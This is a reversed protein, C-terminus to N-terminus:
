AASDQAQLVSLAGSRVSAPYPIREVLQRLPALTMGWQYDELVRKRARNGIQTAEGNLIQLLAAAFAKPEDATLFEDGRCRELGERAESTLVLAAGMAMAELVKNQVGRAIRLPAIVATAHHLYPRVDPVRGTVHVDVGAISRVERSPNAGVIWLAPGSPHSRVQPMVEAVFWKMADVNPRYDMLGTFVIAPREDFPNPLAANKVFYTSDVGNELVHTHSAAEPALKKFLNAESPSVFVVADATAAAEREAKLLYQAERGYVWRSIGSGEEGYQRWKQSDVDVMDIIVRARHEGRRIYQAMASSYVYVIEPDHVRLLKEVASGFVRDGFYGETLPAGSLLCRLSRLRAMNPSLPRWLVSACLKELRSVHERDEPEDIFTGLHVEYEAALSKLINWARIKDGKDPPYPIRHSLFVVQKVKGWGGFM